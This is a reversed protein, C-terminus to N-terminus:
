SGARRARYALVNMRNGCNGADCYRKSRNRSLDVVVGTCDDAACLGLRDYEDSRIVDIFAMAAEVRIRTVLPADPETAHLHWDWDGHRVLQPLAAAERLMRNVLEVAEDRDVEWFRRFEGRLSRVGQLEADDLDRRGSYDHEDLLSVLTAVDALADDDSGAVGSATNVLEAVFVLTAETDYAFVM